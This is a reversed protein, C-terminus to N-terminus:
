RRYKVLFAKLLSLSICRLFLMGDAQYFQEFCSNVLQKITMNCLELAIRHINQKLPFWCHEIPNLDPSYSPWFM